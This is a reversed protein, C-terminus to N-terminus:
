MLITWSFCVLIHRLSTSLATVLNVFIWPLRMASYAESTNAAKLFLVVVGCPGDGGLAEVGMKEGGLADVRM